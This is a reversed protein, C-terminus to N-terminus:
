LFLLFTAKKDSGTQEFDFIKSFLEDLDSPLQELKGQLTKLHVKGKLDERNLMEVVLVVCTFIHQAKRIIEEQTTQGNTKLKYKM